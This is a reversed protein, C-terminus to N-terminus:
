WICAKLRRMGKMRHWCYAGSGGPAGVVLVDITVETVQGVTDCGHHVGLLGLLVGVQGLGVVLLLRSTDHAFHSDKLGRERTNIITRLSTSLVIFLLNNKTTKNKTKTQDSDTNLFYICISVTVHAIFISIKTCRHNVKQFDNWYHQEASDLPFM